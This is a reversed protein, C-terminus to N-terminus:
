DIVGEAAVLDDCFKVSIKNEPAFSKGVFTEWQVKGCM